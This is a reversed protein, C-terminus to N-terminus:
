SLDPEIVVLSVVRLAAPPAAFQVVLHFSMVAAEVHHDRLGVCSGTPRFYKGEM